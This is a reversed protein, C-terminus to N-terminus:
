GGRTHMELHPDKALETLPVLPSRERLALREEAGRDARGTWASAIITRLQEVSAGGRLPQRLDLGRAAYLCLYWLGDATLRSRDCASCFPATTSAIIGFTTGDALRFRVAPASTMEVIPTVPGHAAEIAALIEERSVVRERSWHTAGGVDMYEIFRIEAGWERARALLAGIEDDNSGRIVVADLKVSRFGAAVAAEIGKLVRSFEDFRAIARFRDPQLTDLSVTVRHLGAAALATAQEELLVGNTTMALDRVWPKEAIWRVLTPLDTRILPEGGTLRIREVGLDGFADTLRSIEEFQLIDK